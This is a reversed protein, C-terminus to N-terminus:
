QTKRWRKYYGCKDSCSRVEKTSYVAWGMGCAECPCIGLELVGEPNLPITKTNSDMM